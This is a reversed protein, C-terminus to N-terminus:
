LQVFLAGDIPKAALPLPFIGDNVAILVPLAGMVAVIVTVAEAVLQGPCGTDNVM